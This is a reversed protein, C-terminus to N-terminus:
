LTLASFAFLFRKPLFISPTIQKRFTTQGPLPELVSSLYLVFGLLLLMLLVLLLVLVLQLRDAAVIHGRGEGGETLALAGRAGSGVAGAYPLTATPEWPWYTGVSV